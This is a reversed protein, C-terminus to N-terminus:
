GTIPQIIVSNVDSIVRVSYKGAVSPLSGTLNADTWVFLNQDGNAASVTFGLEKGSLGGVFSDFVTQPLSVSVVVANGAGLGYVHNVSTQLTRLSDQVQNNSFSDSFITFAIGAVIAIFGLLVISLILFEVSVQAFRGFSKKM